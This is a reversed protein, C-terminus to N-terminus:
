NFKAYCRYVYINDLRENRSRDNIMEQRSDDKKKNNNRNIDIQTYYTCILRFFFSHLVNIYKYM